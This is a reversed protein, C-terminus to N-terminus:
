KKAVGWLTVTGDLSGDALVTGDPSFAVSTINDKPGTLTTLQKKAKVDWLHITKDKGAAAILTADANFSVSLV